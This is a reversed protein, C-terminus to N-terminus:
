APSFGERQLTERIKQFAASVHGKPFPIYVIGDINSFEECGDERVIIAREFGLAGQFFGIEHVVNQRARVQGGPQEDDATMIIFAIGADNKMQVLRTEISMGPTSVSDFEDVPLRMKDQILDKVERWVHSRGHGIAVKKGTAAVDRRPNESSRTRQKAETVADTLFSMIYRRGESRSLQYPSYTERFVNAAGSAADGVFMDRFYDLGIETAAEEADGAMNILTDRRARVDDVQQWDTFPDESTDEIARDVATWYAQVAKRFSSLAEVIWEATREM